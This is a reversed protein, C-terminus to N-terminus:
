YANKLQKGIEHLRGKVSNDIQTTAYNIIIGGIISPDVIEALVVKKGSKEQLKVILKDRMEDNLPTSTTVTIKAIGKYNNYDEIFKKSIETFYRIRNKSILVCLFNYAHSSDDFIKSVIDLKESVDLTPVSLLTELEPNDVFIDNYTDIQSKVDDLCNDELCLQFLADAYLKPVDGM